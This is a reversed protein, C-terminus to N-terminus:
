SLFLLSGTTPQSGGVGTKRWVEEERRGEEEESSTGLANHMLVNTTRATQEPTAQDVSM